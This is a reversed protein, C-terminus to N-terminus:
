LNIQHHLDTDQQVDLYQEVMTFLIMQITYLTQQGIVELTIQDQINIGTLRM